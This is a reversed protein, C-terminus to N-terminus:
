NIDSATTNTLDPNMRRRYESPSCGCFERFYRSFHYLNHFGSQEAAQQVQITENTLLHRAREIRARILDAHPTIHFFQKYLSCFQSKGFGIEGCLRALTWDQECGALMRFRLDSFRHFLGSDTQREGEALLDRAISLFFRRLLLDMNEEYLPLQALYEQHLQRIAANIPGTGAPYFLRNEPIRYRALVDPTDCYFHLYSNSFEGVAQYHQPTGPTYLLCAGPEAIETRDAFYFKMPALILLFLYDMRGAPRYITDRDPNYAMYSCYHMRFM